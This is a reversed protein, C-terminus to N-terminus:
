RQVSSLLHRLNGIGWRAPNVVVSSSVYGYGLGASYVNGSSSCVCVGGGCSRCCIVFSVWVRGRQISSLLHRFKGM